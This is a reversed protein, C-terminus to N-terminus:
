TPLLFVNVDMIVVFNLMEKKITGVNMKSNHKLTLFDDIAFLFIKKIFLLLIALFMCPITLFSARHLTSYVNIILPDLHM